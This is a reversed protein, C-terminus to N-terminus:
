CVPKGGGKPATGEGKEKWFRHRRVVFETRSDSTNSISQVRNSLGFPTRTEVLNEDLIVDGFDLLVAVIQFGCNVTQQLRFLLVSLLNSLLQWRYMARREIIRDLGDILCLQVHTVHINSPRLWLRFPHRTSKIVRYHRASRSCFGCDLALTAM